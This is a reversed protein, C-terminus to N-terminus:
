VLMNASYICQDGNGHKRPCFQCNCCKAVKCKYGSVRWVVVILGCAKNRCYQSMGVLFANHPYLFNPCPTIPCGVETYLKMLISYLNRSRNFVVTNTKRRPRPRVSKTMTMDQLEIVALYNVYLVGRVCSLHIVHFCHRLCQRINASTYFVCRVLVQSTMM